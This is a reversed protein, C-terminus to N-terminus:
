KSAKKQLIGQLEVLSKALDVVQAASMTEMNLNVLVQDDHQSWDFQHGYAEIAGSDKHRTCSGFVEYDVIKSVPM